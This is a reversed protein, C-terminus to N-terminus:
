FPRKTKPFNMWVNIGCWRPGEPCPGVETALHLSQDPRKEALIARLQEPAVHGMGGRYRTFCPPGIYAGLRPHVARVQMIEDYACNYIEMQALFCSRLRWKHLFHLYSGTQTYRVMLANPLIYCAYEDPVGMAILRNKTDWLMQMTSRYLAAAEDNATITPPELYDPERTHTFRVIPRSAPTTRHRQEQSDGTHSIRKKFSYTVHNLARMLPSHEWMNLTDDLYRNRAPDCVAAIADDDSLMEGGVAFIERVAGALRKEADSDHHTMLSWRDGLTRDFSEVFRAREDYGARREALEAFLREEPLLEQELTDDGVRTIFDPDIEKVAAIMQDVVMKAERPCDGCAAMRQYRKLVIGSITHYLTTCAAIPLVYRANEISKKESDTHIQKETQGKSHGIKEMLGFNDVVLLESLRHYAEWSKVVASEYLVRAEGDLPPVHVAAADMVVYRQSQQESNYFPHSHLFSWVFHRSVNRLGFVFTPHQFPTHHGAGYISAGIRERQGETVDKAYVLEHAYCTRATAMALDFPKPTYALLEVIPDGAVVEYTSM